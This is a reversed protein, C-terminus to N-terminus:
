WNGEKQAKRHLAICHVGPGDAADKDFVHSKTVSKFGTWMQM